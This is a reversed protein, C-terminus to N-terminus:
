VPSSNPSGPPLSGALAICCHDSFLYSHSRFGPLLYFLLSFVFLCHCHFNSFSLSPNLLCNSLVDAFSSSVTTTCLPFPATTELVLSIQSLSNILYTSAFHDFSFTSIELPLCFTMYTTPCDKLDAIGGQYVKGTIVCLSFM